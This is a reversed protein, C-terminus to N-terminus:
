PVEGQDQATELCVVAETLSNLRGDKRRRVVQAMHAM